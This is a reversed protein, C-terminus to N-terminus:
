RRRGQVWVWKKQEKMTENTKKHRERGSETVSEVVREDRGGKRRELYLNLHALKMETMGRTQM